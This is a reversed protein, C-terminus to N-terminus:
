KCSGIVKKKGKRKAAKLSASSCIESVTVPLFM